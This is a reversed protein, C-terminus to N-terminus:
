DGKMISIGLAKAAGSLSDAHKYESSIEELLEKQISNLDQDPKLKKENLEGDDIFIRM